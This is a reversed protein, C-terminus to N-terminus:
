ASAPVKKRGQEAKAAAAASKVNQQEEPPPLVAEMGLAQIWLERCWGKSHYLHEDEQDEVEDVAKALVEAIDGPAVEACKSLLQWNLHDKTEAFVVCECAVLEAAAPDGGKAKNMAIILSQGIHKVIASGPTLEPGIGVKAMIEQVVEVHRQTQELYHTWENRLDPNIACEIATRYIKVGGLETELMQQLLETFKMDM